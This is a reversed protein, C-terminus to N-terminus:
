KNKDLLPELYKWVTEALIAHGQVNPHIADAQNLSPVGGVRDLLFPVLALHNKEALAPYIAAFAHTYDAGLNTPMMMGELLIKVQPEKARVKDIIAQLNAEAQAPALGRLGDNAGLELVFISIPQRLIWDIRRLGGATTEGSLGANVVHYPLHEREIRDEILGPYAESPDELGYGATISDGFFLITKPASPANEAASTVTPTELFFGALTIIGLRRLVRVTQYFLPFVNTRM